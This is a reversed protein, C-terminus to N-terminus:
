VRDWTLEKDLRRRTKYETRRSLDPHCRATDCSVPSYKQIHPCATFVHMLHLNCKSQQFLTAFFHCTLYLLNCVYM